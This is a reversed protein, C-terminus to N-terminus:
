NPIYCVCLWHQCYFCRVATGFWWRGVEFVSRPMLSARQLPVASEGMAEHLLELDEPYLCTVHGVPHATGFRGARGAIQKVEPARLRRVESGTSRADSHQATSPTVISRIECGGATMWLKDTFKM